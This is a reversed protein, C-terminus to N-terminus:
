AGPWDAARTRRLGLRVEQAPCPPWTRRSTEAARELFALAKVPWIQPAALERTVKPRRVPTFLWQLPAFVQAPHQVVHVVIWATAIGGTEKRGVHDITHEVAVCSVGSRM